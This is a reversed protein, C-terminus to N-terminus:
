KQISSYDTLGNGATIAMAAMYATSWAIQLNFGGTLADVDLVEGIFYLGPLQKSMMTRPDISKVDIGGRTVVAEEFGGTGVLTLPFAKMLRVFSLREERTILSVKKEPSIGSLTVMVPILSSPFLSSLANKFQKNPAEAFERQLRKDLQEESLASKLDLFAALNKERLLHGIKASASLAMPGSVGRSTFLIEGFDEYVVKKGDMVKLGTNRLSLGMLEQCFGEKALLSVLSPATDTVKHGLSRAFRYGDGTSGTSPYSLGGSAVLVVDGSVTEGNELALSFGGEAQPIIDKVATRLHVKTGALSLQHELAKIIDSSHDSCPFVRKGREVKLPVGAEEFFAQTEQSGFTYFSSYLFRRNTVVAQLLEEPTSDNTLNCRGKGTIFLKKGLKENKEYIHTEIGARGLFVGAMMGAAGGGIILAKSM